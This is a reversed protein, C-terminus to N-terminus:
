KLFREESTFIPKLYYYVKVNPCLTISFLHILNHALPKFESYFAKQMISHNCDQGKRKTNTLSVFVKLIESATDVFSNKLSM